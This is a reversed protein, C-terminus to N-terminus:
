MSGRPVGLGTAIRDLLDYSMVQRGGLVDAIDSQSQSTLAAITRQSMGAAGLLRYVTAIDRTALADRMAPEHWVEAPVSHQRSDRNM